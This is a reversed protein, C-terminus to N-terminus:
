HRVDKKMSTATDVIEPLRPWHRLIDAHGAEVVRGLIWPDPDRPCTLPTSGQSNNARARSWQDLLVGWDEFLRHQHVPHGFDLVRHGIDTSSSILAQLLIFLWSQLRIM